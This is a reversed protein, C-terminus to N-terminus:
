RTGPCSIATAWRIPCRSLEDLVGGTVTETVPDFASTTITDAIGAYIEDLQQVTSATHCTDASTAITNMLDYGANDNSLFISYVTPAGAASKLIGAATRARSKSNSDGSYSSLTTSGNKLKRNNYATQGTLNQSPDLTQPNLNSYNSASDTINYYRNAEGDSM